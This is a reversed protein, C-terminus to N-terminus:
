GTPQVALLLRTIQRRREDIRARRADADIRAATPMEQAVDALPVIRGTPTPPLSTPNAIRVLAAGSQIGQLDIWNVVGPDEHAFAIRVVGDSDVTAQSNNLSSHRNAYDLTRWWVTGPQVSWYPTEPAPMEMIWCEGPKVNFHGWSIAPVGADRYMFDTFGNPNKRYGATLMDAWFKATLHLWEGLVDFERAIRDPSMKPWSGTFIELAEIEVQTPQANGWDAFFDRMLVASVGEPLPFWPEGHREGGVFFEFNGGDSVAMNKSEVTLCIEQGDFFQFSMAASNGLRGSIRYTVGGTLVASRYVSDPAAGGWDFLHVPWPAGFAPAHPNAEGLLRDMAFHLTILINRFGDARDIQGTPMGDRDILDATNRLHEIFRDFAARVEGLDGTDSAAAAAPPMTSFMWGLSNRSEM